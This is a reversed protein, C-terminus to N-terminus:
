KRCPNIGAFSSYTTRLFKYGEIFGAIFAEDVEFGGITASVDDIQMVLGKNEDPLFEEIQKYISAQKEVLANYEESYEPRETNEHEILKAAAVERVVEIMGAQFIATAVPTEVDYGQHSKILKDYRVMSIRTNM